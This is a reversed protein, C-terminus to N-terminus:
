LRHLNRSGLKRRKQSIWGHSLCVSLCVSNRHSLRASLPLQKRAYFNFVQFNLPCTVWHGTSWMQFRWHKRVIATKAWRCLLAQIQGTSRCRARWCHYHHDVGAAAAATAAEQVQQGHRGREAPLISLRSCTLVIISWVPWHGRADTLRDSRRFTPRIDTCSQVRHAGVVPWVGSECSCRLM